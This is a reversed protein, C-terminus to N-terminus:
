ASEAEPFLLNEQGLTEKASTSTEAEAVLLDIEVREPTGFEKSMAVMVVQSDDRFVIGTLADLVGRLCKDIDPKTTKETIRKPTSKPKAFYFRVALEVAKETVAGGAMEAMAAGAIQQRWPKLKKNDTTIVPRTWGKPIFAKTSGQPQPTGYVTLSLNM